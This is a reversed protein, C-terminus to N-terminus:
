RKAPTMAIATPITWKPNALAILVHSNQPTAAVMRTRVTEARPIIPAQAFAQMM